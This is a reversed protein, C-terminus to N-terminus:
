DAAGAVLHADNYEAPDEPAPTIDASGTLLALAADAYRTWSFASRAFRAARAGMTRSDARNNLALTLARVLAEDDDRPFTYGLRHREIWEALPSLTRPLFNRPVIVPVGSWMAEGVAQGFTESRSCAVLLDAAAYWDGISSEQGIFRTRASLATGRLSERLAQGAPGDGIVIWWTRPTAARTLARAIHLQGKNENVVGITLVVQADDPLDLAARSRVVPSLRRPDIGLPQWAIRAKLPGYECAIVDRVAPTPVLVNTATRFARQEIWRAIPRGRVPNEIRGLAAPAFLRSRDPWAWAAALAPAPSLAISASPAPKGRRLARYWRHLSLAPGFRWLVPRRRGGVTVIEDFAPDQHIGGDGLCLLTVRVGRARLGGALGRAHEIGGGPQGFRFAAQIQITEPCHEM